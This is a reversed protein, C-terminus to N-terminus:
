GELQLRWDRSDRLAGHVLVLVPGRGARRCAIRLGGVEVTEM